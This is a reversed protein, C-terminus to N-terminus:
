YNCSSNCKQLFTHVTARPMWAALGQEGAAGRELTTYNANM